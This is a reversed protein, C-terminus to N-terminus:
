LQAIGHYVFIRELPVLFSLDGKRLDHGRFYEPFGKRILKEESWRIFQIYIKRHLAEM